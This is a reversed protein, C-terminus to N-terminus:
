FIKEQNLCAILTNEMLSVITMPGVGGPVPTIYAAVDKVKEFDVDGVLGNKTRNIGVDIVIAGKKVMDATLFKPKGVAVILFDGGRTIKELDKTKSHCITVTLDEALLAIAIPKGSLLSRGVVIAHKGVLPIKLSKIMTLVARATAPILTEKDIKKQRFFYGLNKATLCDVDKEPLILSIIEEENFNAPLPLQVVIGHVKKDKNLDGILRKLFDFSVDKKLTYRWFNFGAEKFFNEKAEVYIRSEPDDGVLIVALGPKISFNKIKEKIQNKIKEALIKGDIIQM